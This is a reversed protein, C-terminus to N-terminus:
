KTSRLKTAEAADEFLKKITKAKDKGKPDPILTQIDEIIANRKKARNKHTSYQKSKSLLEILCDVYVLNNETKPPGWNFRSKDDEIVAHPFYESIDIELIDQAWKIASEITVRIQNCEQTDVQEIILKQYKILSSNLDSRIKVFILEIEEKVKEIRKKEIGFETSGDESKGQLNFKKIIIACAAKQLLESYDINSEHILWTIDADEIHMASLLALSDVGISYKLKKNHNIM